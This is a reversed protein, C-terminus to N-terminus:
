ERVTLNDWKRTKMDCAYLDSTPTIHETHPRCGGYVYLIEEEDDVVTHSWDNFHPFSGKLSLAELKFTDSATKSNKRPRGRLRKPLPPTNSPTDETEQATSESDSHVPPAKNISKRLRGRPKKFRPSVSSASEEKRSRRLASAAKGSAISTRRLMRALQCHVVQHLNSISNGSISIGISSCPMLRPM